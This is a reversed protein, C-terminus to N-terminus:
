PLPPVLALPLQLEWLILHTGDLKITVQDYGVRENHHM